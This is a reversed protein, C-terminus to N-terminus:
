AIGVIAKQKDGLKILLKPLILGQSIINQFGMISFILGILAPRWSFTDM